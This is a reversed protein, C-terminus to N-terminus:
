CKQKNNKLEYSSVFKTVTTLYSFFNYGNKTNTIEDKDFGFKNPLLLLSFLLYYEESFLQYKSIYIRFLSEVDIYYYNNRIFNHLDIVPSDFVANEWNILYSNENILLHELELNNHNLVVRRTSKDKMIFYWKDICKRCSDLSSYIYSCNRIFLYKSPSLFVDCEFEDFFNYYYNKINEINEIFSEYFSKVDDISIRKYCTTKNHLMSILYIMELAKEEKSYLSCCVYDTIEYYDERDAKGELFNNFKRSKLYSYIGKDDIKKKLCFNGKDTDLFYVKGINKYKNVVLGYKKIVKKLDNNM